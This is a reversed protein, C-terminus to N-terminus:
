GRWGSTNQVPRERVVVHEDRRIQALRDDGIWDVGDAPPCFYVNELANAWQMANLARVHKAAAIRVVNSFSYGLAYQDTLLDGRGRTMLFDRWM